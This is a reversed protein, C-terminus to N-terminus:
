KYPNGPCKTMHKPGDQFQRIMITAGCGPCVWPTGQNKNKGKMDDNGGVVADVDDDTLESRLMKKMEDMEEQSTPFKFDFEAM